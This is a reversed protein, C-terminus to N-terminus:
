LSRSVVKLSFCDDVELADASNIDHLNVSEPSDMDLHCRAEELERPTSEADSATTYVTFDGSETQLEPTVDCTSREDDRPLGDNGWRWRTRSLHTSVRCRLASVLPLSTCVPAPFWRASKQDNDKYTGLGLYAEESQNLTPEDISAATRTWQNYIETTQIRSERGSNGYGLQPKSM